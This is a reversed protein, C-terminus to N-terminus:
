LKDEKFYEISLIILGMILSVISMGIFAMANSDSFAQGYQGLNTEWGDLKQALSVVQINTIFLGIFGAIFLTIGIITKKLIYGGKM